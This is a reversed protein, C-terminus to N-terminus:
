EKPLYIIGGKETVIYREGTTKKYIPYLVGKYDWYSGDKNDLTNLEQSVAEPSSFSTTGFCNLIPVKEDVNEPNVIRLGFEGFKPSLTIIYSNSGYSDAEFPILKMNGESTNGLWNAMALETTRVKRGVEFEVIQIISTPDTQNDKCRVILTIPKTPDLQVPSANGKVYVKQRVPGIGVLLRGASQITKVQVSAKEVPKSVTDTDFSLAMVQGIWKPEFRQANASLYTTAFMVVM